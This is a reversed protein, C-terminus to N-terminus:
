LLVSEDLLINDDSVVLDNLDSVIEYDQPDVNNFADLDPDAMPGTPEQIRLLFVALLAVAVGTAPLLRRIRLWGHLKNSWSRQGEERIRRIVDRAFFPSVGPEPAQGLLDWLEQDDERKM